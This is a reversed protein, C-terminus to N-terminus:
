WSDDAITLALISCIPLGERRLELARVQRTDVVKQEAYGLGLHRSVRTVRGQAEM